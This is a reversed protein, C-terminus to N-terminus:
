GAEVCLEDGHREMRQAVLQATRFESFMEPYVEQMWKVFPMIEREMQTQRVNLMNFEGELSNFNNQIQSYVGKTGQLAQDMQYDSIPISPLKM